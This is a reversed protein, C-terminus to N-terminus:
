NAEANEYVSDKMRRKTRYMADDASKYVEMFSKGSLWESYGIACSYGKAEVAKYMNDVMKEVDPTSRLICFAAFEDGGVRYIRSKPLLSDVLAHSTAVLARDGAEHGQTDNIVKLDNLDISLIHSVLHNGYRTIDVNFAERNLVGTLNDYRFHEIHLYLYYGLISLAIVSLLIGRLSFVMEVLVAVVVSSATIALIGAETSHTRRKAMFALVFLFVIYFASVIHPEYHLVGRVIRGDENYSFFLDTFLSPLLLFCNAVAPAITWFRTHERRSLRDAVISILFAMLLIRVDYQLMGVLKHLFAATEDTGQHAFAFFDLNDLGTLIMLLLTSPMFHATLRVEYRWNARLFFLLFILILIPVTNIMAASQVTRELCSM